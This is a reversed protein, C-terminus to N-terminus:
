GVHDSQLILMDLKWGACNYMGKRIFGSSNPSNSNCVGEYVINIIFYNTFYFMGCNFQM